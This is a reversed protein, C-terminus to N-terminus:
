GDTSGGSVKKELKNRLVVITEQLRGLDKMKEAPSKQKSSEWEFRLSELEDRLSSATNKLQQIEDTTQQVVKQIAADREFSNEELKARIVNITERLHRIHMDNNDDNGYQEQCESSEKRM